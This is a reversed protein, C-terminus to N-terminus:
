PNAVEAVADQLGSVIQDELEDTSSKMFMKAPLGPHMVAKRFILNGDLIFALAKANVPAIPYPGATGQDQFKMYYAPGGGAEVSGEIANASVTAPITVVSRAGKGTRVQLVDGTVKQLIRQQILLDSVDVRKRLAEILQGSKARLSSLFADDGTLSFQIM